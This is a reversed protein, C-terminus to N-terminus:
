LNKGQNGPFESLKVCAFLSHRGPPAFTEFSQHMVLSVLVYECSTLSYLFSAVFLM